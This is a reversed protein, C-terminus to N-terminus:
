RSEKNTSSKERSPERDRYFRLLSEAHDLDFNYTIKLNEPFDFNLYRASNRPLQNALETSRCHPDFHEMLVDFRFAEPSQMIYFQNRDLIDYAYNGLEGTIKQSTIVCDYEDLKQFYDDILNPYVLPAVADFICIRRCPYHAQIYHLGNSLSDNREKGGFTIDIQSDEPASMFEVYSPDCVVVIQDVQRAAKCADIVYDIVRKGNLMHYQKPLEAGFRRGVGGSMIMAINM